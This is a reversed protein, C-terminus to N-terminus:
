AGKGRYKVLLKEFEDLGIDDVDTIYIQQTEILIHEDHYIYNPICHPNTLRNRKWGDWTDFWRHGTVEFCVRMFDEKLSARRQENALWKQNPKMDWNGDPFFTVISSECEITIKKDPPIDVGFNGDDFFHSIAMGAAEQLSIEGESKFVPIPLLSELLGKEEKRNELSVEYEGGSDAGFSYYSVKM